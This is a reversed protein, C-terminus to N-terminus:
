AVTIAHGRTATMAGDIVHEVGSIFSSEDSALFVVLNAVEVAEGLRNLPINSAAGGGDEGTGAVMMPTRIYGPHVSNARINKSGYESAVMKTMGRVAFKSGVYAINPSGGEALMGSISSVNIISGGGAKLMSPIVARMGLFVGTQNVACVHEYDQLSLAVTPSIKGIIGANNVLVNVNGFRKEAESVVRSWGEPDSVDHNMFHINKGIDRAVSQGLEEQVDTMIVKAGQEVFARADAEGMGQAAGTVIAVKGELRGVHTEKGSKQTTSRARDLGYVARWM